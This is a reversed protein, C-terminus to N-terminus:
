DEKCKEVTALEEATLPHHTYEERMIKYGAYPGGENFENLADEFSMDCYDSIDNALDELTDGSLVSCSDDQAYKTALGGNPKVLVYRTM